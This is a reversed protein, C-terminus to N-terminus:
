HFYLYKYYFVLYIAFDITYKARNIYKILTDDIGQYVYIANVGSSYTNDVPSNFYVKMNGSSNSITAFPMIGSYATDIGNVSFAQVWIVQGASLGSLAISHDTTGGTGPALNSKVNSPSSGYFMETTGTINTAWTFDLETKTFNTNNLTTTLYIASTKKIDNNNRPLLQYGGVSTFSYQSSIATLNVLGHPIPQGVIDQGTKVYINVSGGSATIGYTKNGAFVGGADSFSANNIQVLRGEYTEGIQAPTVVIPEPVPYGTSDIVVSTLPDLELLGNYNKLKGTVTISDGKHAKNVLAGYAPIGATNDQFYRITGFEAGHTVIGKVTVVTGVPLNRAEQITNQANTISAIGLFVLSLIFLKKM